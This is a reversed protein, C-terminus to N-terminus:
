KFPNEFVPEQYLYKSIIQNSIKEAIKVDTALLKQYDLFPMQKKQEETYSDPTKAITAAASTKAKEICEKSIKKVQAILKAKQLEICKDEFGSLMKEHESANTIDKNVQVMQQEAQERNQKMKTIEARVHALGNIIDKPSFKQEDQVRVQKIKEGDWVFNLKNGM